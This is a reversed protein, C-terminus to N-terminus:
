GEPGGDVTQLAKAKEVAEDNKKKMQRLLDDPGGGEILDRFQSRYTSVLSVGEVVVDIAKWEGSTLKRLRYDITAGDFNGGVIRTKVVVHGRSVVEEGVMEVREDGWRDLRGGYSRSLLVKFEHTFATMQDSSFLRWGRALVLKSMTKFDFHAYAIDEIRQRRRSPDLTSDALVALVDDITQSVAARPASTVPAEAEPVSAALRPAVMAALTLGAVAWKTLAPRRSRAKMEVGRM